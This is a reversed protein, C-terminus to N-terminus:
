PQQGLMWVAVTEDWSCSAIQGEIFMNFDLGIVFETHHEFRQILPDERLVDWLILSMDYSSSAIVTESHPSCKIRRVAYGHGKLSGIPGKTANRIDWLKISKDVSGTVLTWENYKNWDCTLVEHSHAPIITVADRERADWVRATKDGSASAFREAAHPSWVTSYICYSHGRFTSVSQNRTPDWLKITEDWSGSIFTQKNMLNWDVSYVEATHEEYSKLPLGERVLVDWLKISGDGSASILHNENEESWSCDYIGDRTNFCNLEIIENGRVELIHQKGNGILGFHQATAVAFRREEFPSFEVSYGHFPTRFFVMQFKL